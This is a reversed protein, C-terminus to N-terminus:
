VDLVLPHIQVLQQLSGVVNHDAGPEVLRGPMQDGSWLQRDHFRIRMQHIDGPARHDVGVGEDFCELGTMESANGEVDGFGLRQGGVM